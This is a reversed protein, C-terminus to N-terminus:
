DFEGSKKVARKGVVIKTMKTDEKQVYPDNETYVTKQVGVSMQSRNALGIQHKKLHPFIRKVVATWLEVANPSFTSIRLDELNPFLRGITNRFTAIDYAPDAVSGLLLSQVQYFPELNAIAPYDGKKMDVNFYLKRLKTLRVMPPLAEDFSVGCLFSVRLKELETFRLCIFNWLTRADDPMMELTLVRMNDGVDLNSKFYILTPKVQLTIMQKSVILLSTIPPGLQTFVPTLDGNFGELHFKVLRYLAPMRSPLQVPSSTILDSLGILSLSKLQPLKSFITTMLKTVLARNKPFGQVKLHQLQPGWRGMQALFMQAQWKEHCPVTVSVVSPFLRSIFGATAPDPNPSYLRPLNTFLEDMKEDTEHWNFFMISLRARCLNEAVARWQRCVARIRLLNTLDFREFFLGIAFDERSEWELDEAKPPTFIISPDYEPAAKEKPSEGSKLPIAQKFLQMEKFRKAITDINKEACEVKTPMEEDVVDSIIFM